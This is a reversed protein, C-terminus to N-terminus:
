SDDHDRGVYGAVARSEDFTHMVYSFDMCAGGGQMNLLSKRQSAYSTNRVICAGGKRM